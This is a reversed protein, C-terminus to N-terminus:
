LADFQKVWRIFRRASASRTQLPHRLDSERQSRAIPDTYDQMGRYPLPEVTDGYVTNLDGDKDWGINHLIFDRKWGPAPDADPVRFRVSLDDGVGMVVLRNDTKQLLTSVDGYATFAGQMVPWQKTPNTHEYDYSEPGHGAHETSHSYGRFALEAGVLELENLEIESPAEDVTFFVHDWYLEMSTAIRVRYDDTLFAESLDIAITKTKGGPFGMYPKVKQWQGSEDPVWLSPPQPPELNPNQSIAINLSTDTPFVWGTLFLTVLEPSELKGLDLELYHPDVLGQVVRGKFAKLYRDDRRAIIASVDRGTQDHASVPTRPNRVSHVHFQAIEAPGVKENTYIDVEDRHDVAILQVRDFYAAEWLEETIRLEYEDGNAVLQEASIKLYEWDRAPALVNEALQLGIPSAWLLDTVFEFSKGNWAYLYPCSGKLIQVECLQAGASTPHSM